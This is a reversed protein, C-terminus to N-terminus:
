RNILEQKESSITPSEISIIYMISSCAIIDNVAALKGWRQQALRSRADCYLGLWLSCVAHMAAAARPM